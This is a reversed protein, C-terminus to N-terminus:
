GQPRRSVLRPRYVAVGLRENTEDDRDYGTVDFGDSAYHSFDDARIRGRWRDIFTQRNRRSNEFRGPTRAEHHYVTSAPEYRCVKLPESTLRLCLDVDEQGNVFVPDFGRCRAFDPARVALCAGTVAQLDRSHLVAPSDGTLGVYLPYGLSQHESFVVGACQVTGDPFLLRPQVAM